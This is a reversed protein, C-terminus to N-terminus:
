GNHNIKRIMTNSRLLFYNALICVVTAALILIWPSAITSPLINPTQFSKTLQTLNFQMHAWWLMWSSALQTLFINIAARIELQTNLIKPIWIAEQFAPITLGLVAAAAVAEIVLTWTLGLSPIKNVRLQSLIVPSFDIQTSVEPLSSLRSVLNEFKALEERCTSCADLHEEVQKRSLPDQAQDLYAQLQDPLLHNQNTEM